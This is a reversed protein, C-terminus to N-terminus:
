SAPEPATTRALRHSGILPGAVWGCLQPDAQRLEGSIWRGDPHFLGTADGLTVLVHGNGDQEYLAGSYPHIIGNV